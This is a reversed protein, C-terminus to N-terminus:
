PCPVNCRTTTHANIVDMTEPQYPLLDRGARAPDVGALAEPAHPGTLRLRAAREDSFHLMRQRLWPPIYDLTDEPACELRARKVWNDFYLVDVYRAGREYAARTVARTLEEMGVFSTVSVLQGAQVSAGFVALEALRRTWEAYAPDRPDAGGSM